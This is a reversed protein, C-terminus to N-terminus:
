GGDREHCQARNAVQADIHASRVRRLGFHEVSIKMQGSPLISSRAVDPTLSGSMDQKM